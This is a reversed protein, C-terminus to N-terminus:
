TLRNHRLRATWGKRVAKLAAAIPRCTKKIRRITPKVDPIKLSQRARASPTPASIMTCGGFEEINKENELATM